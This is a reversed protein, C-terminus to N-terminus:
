KELFIMVDGEVVEDILLQEEANLSAVLNRLGDNEMPQLVLQVEGAYHQYNNNAIVIDGRQFQKKDCKRVPVGAKAYQFREFRSRIIWESSDGVDCHPYFDLLIERELDTVEDGFNVKFVVQHSGFDPVMTSLMQVMESESRQHKRELVRIIAQFEEESAFANGILIDTVNKTSLIHRLQLDIPLHRHIEVTPLGYDADWVGHNGKAQSSIFAGVRIKHKAIDANIRKFKEWKNATFPQPYFNHCVMFKDTSAGAALYAAADFKTSANFEIMIGYPNNILILDKEIGYSMDMRLIDVKLQAFVGLDDPTASLRKFLMPNVDLSVQMGVQHAIEIFKTFCEILEEGSGEMSFMSSFVRTFGYHSAMVLYPEIQDMGDLDPYVTVGLNLM